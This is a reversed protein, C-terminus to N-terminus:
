TIMTHQTIGKIDKRFTQNYYSIFHELLPPIDEGHERLPLLTVPIIALRFYLDQRFKSARVAEELNRNSAFIVRVDVTINKVGGVRRFSQVELVRLRKAQMGLRTESLED